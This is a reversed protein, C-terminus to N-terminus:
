KKKGLADEFAKFTDEPKNEANLEILMGNEKYHEVAPKTDRTFTEFRIKLSEENDDGRYELKSGCVDCIDEVKPKMNDTFKNYIKSCSPCTQRGLTRKLAVEFSVNLYVAADIKLNLEECIEQLLNVQSMNRPFGDLIFGKKVDEKQLRIKLLLSTIKDDVLKGAKQTERIKKGLETEPDIDRLLQGASIAVLGYEEHIKSALTGKGAAPPAIFILNM